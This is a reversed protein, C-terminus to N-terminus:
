VIIKSEEEKPTLREIDENMKQVVRAMRLYGDTLRKNAEFLFDCMHYLDNIKEKTSMKKKITVFNESVVQQEQTEPPTTQETNESM